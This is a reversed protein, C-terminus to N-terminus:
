LENLKEKLFDESSDTIIEAWIPFHDSIQNRKWTNTYYKNLNNADTMDKIGTYAKIMATKYTGRESPTYIHDFFDFVGGIENGSNDLKIKFFKNVHFFMRDYAQSKSANTDKGVLSTLEVFDADNILKISPADMVKTPTSHYLNMDGALILNESWLRDKEIKEKMADHLLQIEKKRRKLNAPTGGPQLHLNIIAFKKWGSTFGTIYPARKLQKVSSGTSLEARFTIEGALGAFQVRKKNYIYASRESNGDNGETIDNILYDWDSGLLRMVIELDKLSSKIEQVIILDFANLIEAIYFYSEALRQTNHGFEKINWSSILLNGDTKKPSVEQSIAQRLELIKRICRKKESIKMDPFVLAFDKKNEDNKPRLDNYWPM